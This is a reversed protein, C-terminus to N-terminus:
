RSRVLPGITEIKNTWIGGRYDDGLARLTEEDDVGGTGWRNDGLPGVALVVTNVGAMRSIFRNPWGWIFKTYNSPIVLMTERCTKPIYGTWGIAVYSKFCTKLSQKSFGRLGKLLEIAKKTPKEGGYVFTNESYSDRKSAILPALKEAEVPDNSKFNLLFKQSPFREFVESLSPMLGVAKGRLPFTKGEDSTYGYGVDLTKLQSMAQERVVGTGDTRCELSWDHFVAFHGDTTPHIDIEVIDAGHDFAAQMSSLTNELYQHTIPKLRSATCTDRELGEREYNQHVGRHALLLQHEPPSALWSANLLLGLIGLVFIGLLAKTRTRM